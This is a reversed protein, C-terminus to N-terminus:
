LNYKTYILILRGAYFINFIKSNEVNSPRRTKKKYEYKLREIRINISEEHQGAHLLTPIFSTISYFPSLAFLFDPVSSIYGLTNSFSIRFKNVARRM